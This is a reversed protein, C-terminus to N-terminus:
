IIEVGCVKPFNKIGDFEVVLLGNDVQAKTELILARNKSGKAMKFIDVNSLAVKEQVSVNFVRLSQNTFFLEAFHLRVTYLGNNIGWFYYRFDGNREMLYLPDDATDDINPFPFTPGWLGGGSAFNKDMTWVNGRKDKYDTTGARIRIATYAQVSIASIIAQTDSTLKISLTGDVVTVTFAKTVFDRKSSKSEKVIDFNVVHPLQEIEINMKREDVKITASVNL